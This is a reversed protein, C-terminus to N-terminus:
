NCIPMSQRDEILYALRLLEIARGTDTATRIHFVLRGTDPRRTEFTATGESLLHKQIEPGFPLDVRGDWSLHGLPVGGLSLCLGASDPRIAVGCWTGVSQLVHWLEGPMNTRSWIYGMASDPMQAIEKQSARDNLHEIITTM